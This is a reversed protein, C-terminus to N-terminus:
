GQHFGALDGEFITQTQEYLALVRESQNTDTGKSRLHDIHARQAALIERGMRAHRLAMEHRTEIM